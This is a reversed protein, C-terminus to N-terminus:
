PTKNDNDIAEGIKEEQGTTSKTGKESSGEVHRNGADPNAGSNMINTKVIDDPAVGQKVDGRSTRTQLSSWDASANTIRTNGKANLDM